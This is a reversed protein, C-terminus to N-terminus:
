SSIPIQKRSAGRNMLQELRGPQAMGATKRMTFDVGALHHDIAHDLRALAGLQPRALPHTVTTLRNFQHPLRRNGQLNTTITFPKKTYRIRM